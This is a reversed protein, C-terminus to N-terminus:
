GHYHAMYQTIKMAENLILTVAVHLGTTSEFVLVLSDTGAFVERLSFRLDPARKLAAEFYDRLEQKDRIVDTAAGFLMTLKPTIHHISDAYFGMIADIDHANWAAVWTEAYAQAKKPDIM